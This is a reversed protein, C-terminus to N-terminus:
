LRRMRIKDWYAQDKKQSFKARFDLLSKKNSVDKGAMLVENMSAPTSLSRVVPFHNRLVRRTLSQMKRHGPGTVLNIGLLGNPAMAKCLNALIHEDWAKPRFVDEAGALYIDDFVVDFTETNKELWQYADTVIVRLNLADLAMHQRALAIMESDIDLATIHTDPLLRRLVRCSTGGALGLMLISRPPGSARLLCGAAILDWALGTLLASDHHWAHIAGQVRFETAMESQWIELTQHPTQHTEIRRM